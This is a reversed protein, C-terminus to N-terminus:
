SSKTPSMTTYHSEVSYKFLEEQGLINPADRFTFNLRANKFPLFEPATNLYVKGVCHLLMRNPGGWILVDGSDLRIFQEQQFVLKFGFDCSNGLSISVIPHDNDGDNPDSDAHWYMGDANAYKLLLLHTPMMQPMKADLERAKGVLSNCLTQITQYNPFTMLSDYIRGRGEDSNYVKGPRGPVTAMFSHKDGDEVDVLAYNALWKQQDLNLAGKFLVLGPAIVQANPCIGAVFRFYCVRTLRLSLFIQYTFNNSTM